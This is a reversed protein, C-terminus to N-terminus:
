VGVVVIWYLVLIMFLPTMRKCFSGCPRNATM